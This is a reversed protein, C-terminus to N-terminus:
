INESQQYEIDIFILARQVWKGQYKYFQIDCFKNNFSLIEVFITLNSTSFNM